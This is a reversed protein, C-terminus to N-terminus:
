GGEVVPLISIVDNEGLKTSLGSSLVINKGNVFISYAAKIKGTSDLLERRLPEGFQKTLINLVSNVTNDKSGIKIELEPTKLITKLNGFVKVIVM